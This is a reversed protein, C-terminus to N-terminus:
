KGIVKGPYPIGCNTRIQNNLNKQEIYSDPIGAVHFLEHVIVGPLNAGDSKSVIWNYAHQFASGGLYIQGSPTTYGLAIGEETGNFKTRVEERQDNNIGMDSATLSDRYRKITFTKGGM